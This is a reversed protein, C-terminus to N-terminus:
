PLWRALSLRLAMLARAMQVKVTHESIGMVQATEAYSLGQGRCLTFALRCRPSLRSVAANAARALEDVEAEDHPDPSPDGMALTRADASADDSAARSVGEHRLHNLAANRASRFLFARLTTRLEWRQRQRWITLFLDQVLEEAVPESRVFSYTFAVLRQYWARYLREFAAQDGAQIRAVLDRESADNLVAVPAPARASAPLSDLRMGIARTVFPELTNARIRRVTVAGNSYPQARPPALM